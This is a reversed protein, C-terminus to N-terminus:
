PNAPFRGVDTTQELYCGKPGTGYTLSGDFNAMEPTLTDGFAFPTSKGARCAYEWQAESPLVYRGGTRMSLRRCFEMAEHCSVQEVPRNAGSFRSPAPNLDVEVKGWCAVVGWQAQTVPSQGLFFSRLSVKHQPGEHSQREPENQPSGMLFEGAPIKIMTIAVGEALKEQYGRVTLPEEKKRWQDGERVLWGRTTPIQILPPAKSSRAELQVQPQSTKLNAQRELDQTERAQRHLEEKEKAIRELEAQAREAEARSAEAEAKWREAEARAESEARLRENQAAEELQRKAEQEALVREVEERRATAEAVAVQQAALQDQHIREFVEYIHDTIEVFARDRQVEDMDGLTLKAPIVAQYQEIQRFRKWSCPLLPVWLIKLGNTKAAEFLTPLEKRQIFDSALFNKSVLLLAVQARALAAEIEKLWEDGPDIRTDDWIQVDCLMELPKLHLKLDDLWRQDKQSYSIFLERRHRRGDASGEPHGGDGSVRGAM